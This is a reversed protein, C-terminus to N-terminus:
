WTAAIAAGDFVDNVIEHHDLQWTSWCVSDTDSALGMVPEDPSMQSAAEEGTLYEPDLIAPIRDPPLLTYMEDGDFTGYVEPESQEAWATTDILLLFLFLVGFTVATRRATATPMTM